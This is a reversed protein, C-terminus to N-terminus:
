ARNVLGKVQTLVLAVVWTIIGALTKILMMARDLLSPENM